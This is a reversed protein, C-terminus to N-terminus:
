KEELVKRAEEENKLHQCPDVTIPHGSASSSLTGVTCIACYKDRFQAKKLAGTLREICIGDAKQVDLLHCVQEDWAEVKKWAERLASCLETVKEDNATRLLLRREIEELQEPTM